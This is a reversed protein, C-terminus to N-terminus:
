REEVGRLKALRRELRPDPGHKALSAEVEEAMERRYRASASEQEPVVKLRTRLPKGFEDLPGFRHLHLRPLVERAKAAPNAKPWLRYFNLWRRFEEVALTPNEKLFRKLQLGDAPTFGGKDGSQSHYFRLWMDIFPQWRPDVEGAPKKKTKKKPPVEQLATLQLVPEMREESSPPPSITNNLNKTNNHVELLFASDPNANRNSVCDTQTEIPFASKAVKKVALLTFLSATKYGKEVALLEAKQLEAVGRSVSAKSIRAKDAITSLLLSCEGNGNRAHRCLVMYVLLGFCGVVERYHDDDLLENDIWFFGGRLDRIKISQDGM